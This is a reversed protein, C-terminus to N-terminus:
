TAPVARWPVLCRSIYPYYGQPNRCFYWYQGAPAPTAVVPPVYPDPYPYVPASYFYWNGNVVWWWGARGNHNGHIWGGRRWVEIDHERFRRIDRDRFREEARREEVRREERRREQASAASGLLPLVSVVALAALLAKRIM